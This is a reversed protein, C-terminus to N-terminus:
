EPVYLYIPYYKEPPSQSMKILRYNPFRETFKDDEWLIAAYRGAKIEREFIEILEPSWTGSYEMYDDFNFACGNWVVLEPAISVCKGDPPVVKGVTAYIERYYSLSQWRFYEGRAIRFIQFAGGVPLLFVMALALKPLADQKFREFILGTVIALLLSNEIYYQTGAGIRGTSLFSWVFSLLFYGLILFKPSRVVNIAEGRSLRNFFGRNQFAFIILCVLSLFFTPHKLMEGLLGVSQAFSYPLREAHTFHQWVYGGSSTQNLLFMGGFVVFGIGVAFIVAERLKKLQLFRLFIIVAPLM